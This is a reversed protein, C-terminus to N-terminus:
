LLANQRLFGEIELSLALRAYAEGDNLDLGTLEVIKELRYRLTNRHIFLKESAEIMNMRNQIYIHLTHVLNTNRERDYTALLRIEPFVYPELDLKEKVANLFCSVFWERYRLLEDAKPLARGAKLADCAQHYHEKVNSIDSFWDSMGARVNNEKLLARLVEERAENRKKHSGMLVIMEDGACFALSGGIRSEIHRQLANLSTGTWRGCADPAIVIVHYYPSIPGQFVPYLEAFASSDVINHIIHNYLLDKCPLTSKILGAHNTSLLVACAKALADVAHLDEDEFSKQIEFAAVHACLTGNSM